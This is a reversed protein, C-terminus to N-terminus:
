SKTRTFYRVMGLAHKVRYYHQVNAPLGVLAEHKNMGAKIRRELEEHVEPPLKGGEYIMGRNPVSFIHNKAVAFTYKTPDKPRRYNARYQEMRKRGLDTVQLGTFTNGRSNQEQVVKCYKKRLLYGLRESLVPRPTGKFLAFFDASPLFNSAFRTLADLMLAHDADLKKYPNFSM